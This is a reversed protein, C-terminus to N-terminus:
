MSMYFTGIKVVGNVVAGTVTISIGGVNVITTFIGTLGQSNVAAVVASEVAQFAAVQNGGYQTLLGGLNHAAKGFIHTLKTANIVTGALASGGSAEAGGGGLTGVGLVYEGGGVVIVATVGTGILLAGDSANALTQNSVITTTANYVVGGGVYSWGSGFTGNFWNAYNDLWSSSAAGPARATQAGSPKVAVGFAINGNRSLAVPADLDYGSNGEQSTTAFSGDQGVTIEASSVGSDSTIVVGYRNPQTSSALLVFGSGDPATDGDANGSLPIVMVEVNQAM